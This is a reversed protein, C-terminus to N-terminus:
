NTMNSGPTLYVNKFKKKKYYHYSLFAVAGILIIAGLTAGVSISNTTTSSNSQQDFRTVWTYTHTDFLYIESSSQTFLSLSGFAVIMYNGVLNASHRMLPPPSNPPIKPISWSYSSSNTDLLVMAPRSMADSMNAGGYIIVKGDPALVATHWSRADIIDGVVTM